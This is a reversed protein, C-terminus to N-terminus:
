VEAQSYSLSNMEVMQLKCPTVCCWFSTQAETVSPAFLHEPKCLLAGLLSGLVACTHEAITTIGWLVCALMLLLLEEQCM